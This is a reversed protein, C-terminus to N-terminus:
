HPMFYVFLNLTNTKLKLFDQIGQTHIFGFSPSINPLDIREFM